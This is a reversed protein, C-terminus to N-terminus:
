IRSAIGRGTKENKEEPISCLCEVREGLLSTNQFETFHHDDTLQERLVKGISFEDQDMRRFGYKGSLYFALYEQETQGPTPVLVARRGLGALDMISSYGSRCVIQKASRVLRAFHDDPLHNFLVIGPHPADPATEGPTGRLIISKLEERQKLGNLIKEELVSRQPEPGSLLFLLDPGDDRDTQMVGAQRAFRTLPGIFVARAPAPFRHSLDGSLNEHGEHDPIWCESYRDIIGRHLRYILPELFKIPGPMKIMVQHTIYICPVRRTWFGFRNDSVVADVGHDKVYSELWRHDRRISLLLRPASLAMKLAMKGSSPYHVRFGPAEVFKLDPFAEKLFALGPGWAAVTVRANKNLLM